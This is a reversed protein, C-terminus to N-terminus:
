GEVKMQAEDLVKKIQDEIKDLAERIVNGIDTTAEKKDEKVRDANSEDACETTSSSPPKDGTAIRLANAVENLTTQAIAKSCEAIKVDIGAIKANASEIATNIRDLKAQEEDRQKKLKEVQERHDEGEQM